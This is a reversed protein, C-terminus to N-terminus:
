DKRLSVRAKSQILELFLGVRDYIEAEQREVQTLTGTSAKETLETMRALDVPPMRLQLIGRAAEVSFGGTQPAVVRELIRSELSATETTLM